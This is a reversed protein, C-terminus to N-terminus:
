QLDQYIIEGNVNAEVIKGGYVECILRNSGGGVAQADYTHVESSGDKRSSLLQLQTHGKDTFLAKCQSELSADKQGCSALALACLIILPRM